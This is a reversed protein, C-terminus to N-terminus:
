ASEKQVTRIATNPIFSDQSSVGDPRVLSGHAGSALEGQAGAPNAAEHAQGLPHRSAAPISVHPNSTVSPTARPDASGGRSLDPEPRERPISLEIDARVLVAGRAMLDSLGLADIIEEGRATGEPTVKVRFELHGGATVTADILFPRLDLAVTRDPRKREYPWNVSELFKSLAISAKEIRDVPLALRYSVSAPRPPSEGPSLSRAELWTLGDPSVASLRALVEDPSISETLELDVIERMAEIGLGLALAFVIKPRPNFGQSTALPIRARRVMRELCRMMDHHSVLRLDGRKAFRLRLQPHAKAQTM